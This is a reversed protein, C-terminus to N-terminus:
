SQDVRRQRRRAEHAVAGVRLRLHRPVLEALLARGAQLPRLAVGPRGALVTRGALVADVALVPSGARGSQLAVLPVGPHLPPLAVLALGARLPQLAVLTVWARLPQLAVLAVLAIGARGTSRSPEGGCALRDHAEVERDRGAVFDRQVPDAVGPLDH